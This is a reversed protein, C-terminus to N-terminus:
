IPQGDAPRMRSLAVEVENALMMGDDVTFGTEADLAGEGSHKNLFAHFRELAARVEEPM